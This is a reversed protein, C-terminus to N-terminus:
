LALLIAGLILFAGLGIGLVTPYSVGADPLSITPVPTVTVTGTVSTTPKPTSTAQVTPTPTKTPIVTGTTLASTPSVPAETATPGVAGLISYSAVGAPILLIDENDSKRTIVSLAPDFSVVLPDKTPVRGVQISLNALLTDSSTKFGSAGTNACAIDIVVNGGLQASNQTPCTWDGSSLLSPNININTVTLEPTLGSFPYSLRVAVGSIAINASNFYVSASITDGVGFSGTGPTISVRAKGGPVSAEERLEQREQLLILGAVFGGIAVVIILVAVAIKRVKM